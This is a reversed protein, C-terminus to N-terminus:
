PQEVLARVRAHGRSALVRREREAVIVADAATQQVQRIRAHEAALRTAHRVRVARIEADLSREVILAFLSM